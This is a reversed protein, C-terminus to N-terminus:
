AHVHMKKMQFSFHEDGRELIGPAADMVLAGRRAQLEATKGWDHLPEWVIYQLAGAQPVQQLVPEGAPEQAPM